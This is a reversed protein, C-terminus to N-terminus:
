YKPVGSDLKFVVWSSRVILDVKVGEGLKRGGGGIEWHRKM